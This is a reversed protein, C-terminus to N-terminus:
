KRKYVGNFRVNMGGCSGNDRVILYRGLNILEAGCDYQEKALSVLKGEEPQGIFDLGGTHVVQDGDDLVAGFWVAEGSVHLGAKDKEIKIKEQGDSWNGTWDSIGIKKASVIDLHKENVWGSSSNRPNYVCYFENYKKSIVVPTKARIMKVIPCKKADESPCADGTKGDDDHIFRSKEKIEGLQYDESLMAFHGNRCWNPPNDTDDYVFKNFNDPQAFSPAVGSLVVFLAIFYKM